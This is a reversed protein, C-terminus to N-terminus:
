PTVGERGTLGWPHLHARGWVATRDLLCAVVLSVTSPLLWGIAACAPRQTLQSLIWAATAM